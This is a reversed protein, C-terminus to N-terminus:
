AMVFGESILAQRIQAVAEAPAPMLPERPRGGKLGVLDMAAKVGAVGWAGSIAQNLRILGASVERAREYLGRVFLEYLEVCADPVVNALSLVGGAAGIHLSSYFFSMSGALVSFDDDPNIEALFRAPGAASSDKM